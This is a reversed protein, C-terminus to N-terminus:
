RMTYGRADMCAEVARQFVEADAVAAPQTTAWRKCDQHDSETQAASQGKRPYIVPVPPEKAVPAAPAAAPQAQDAGPPASVVVYGQGPVANYYVGNAYYYPLGGIWLTVYDTPLLPVVIGIPPLVVTFHTGTPRLWVGGHFFFRDGGFVISIAGVPLVPMVYGRAPYYHNHRYRADYAFPQPPRGAQVVVHGGGSRADPGGHGRDRDHDHDSRGQAGMAAGAMLTTLAVLSTVRLAWQVQRTKMCVGKLVPGRRVQVPEGSSIM